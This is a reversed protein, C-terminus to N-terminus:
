DTDDDAVETEDLDIDVPDIVVEGTDEEHYDNPQTSM